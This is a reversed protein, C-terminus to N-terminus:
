SIVKSPKIIFLLPLYWLPHFLLGSNHTASVMFIFSITLRFWLSSPSPAELFSFVFFLALIFLGVYGQTYYIDLYTNHSYPGLFGLLGGYFYSGSGIIQTIFTSNLDRFWTLRTFLDTSINNTELPQTNSSFLSSDISFSSLGVAIHDSFNSLLLVFLPTALVFFLINQRLNFANLQLSKHPSFLSLFIIFRNRFVVFVFSIATLGVSTRSLTLFSTFFLVFQIVRILYRFSSNTRLHSFLDEFIIIAYPIAASLIITNGATSSFRALSSRTSAAESLLWDLPGFIYQFYISLCALCVAILYLRVLYKSFFPLTFVTAITFFVLILRSFAQIIEAYSSVLLSPILWILTQLYFLVFFFAPSNLRVVPRRFILYSAFVFSLFFPLYYLLGVGRLGASFYLLFFSCFIGKSLSFPKFLM